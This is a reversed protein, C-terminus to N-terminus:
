MVATMPFRNVGCCKEGLYLRFYGGEGWTQGWSNRVIWYPMGRQYGFGVICVVHNLKRLPCRFSSPRLIGRRYTKLLVANMSVVIPGRRYVWKQMEREYPTICRFSKIKAVRRQRVQRCTCQRAKYPYRRRSMLGGLRVISYFASFPFGGKCARDYSDCDLIEQESLVTLSKTKLYWLSEVNAVCAFAWSASCRRQNRVVTVAGRSRWDWQRITRCETLPEAMPIKTMEEMWSSDNMMVPNLYFQNFEEDTMDSFETIGHEATGTDDKEFMQAKKMNEVFIQFRRNEEEEGDYSRNYAVKFEEFDSRMQFMAEDEPLDAPSSCRSPIVQTAVLCAVLLRFM